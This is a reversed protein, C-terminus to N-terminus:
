LKGMAEKLKKIIELAISVDRTEDIGEVIQNIVALKAALMQQIWEEITGEAIIYYSDAGHMDNLRGYAREEAQAHAAPTWWLDAFIVHGAATLNLGTQGTMLSVVLFHVRDDEQFAKELRSREDMPTDGTWYIAEGGLRAAIDRVTKKYQSFILVKKAGGKADDEGNTETDFLEVALDAVHDVKDYSCVQKLKGIEVLISTINKNIENGYSDIVTYVGELIRQYTAKAKDSLEHIRNIRNIPPLDAVVDKKLRRLMIGKLIERLEDVNRARKGDWTYQSVFRDESPFMGPVIHNLLAWLERPRNLIPTGTLHLVSTANINRIAHSRQSQSNKIYHAEDVIILDPKCTNLLEAWLWRAKPPVVHTVGEEDISKEEETMVKRGIIDYNIITYQPKNILMSTFAEKDPIAGRLVEPQKGTLAFIERAWNRKLHAPCIIVTRLNNRESYGLAQWTKGLGMQDALLVRGNAAEIFEIGIKQFERLKHGNLFPVTLDSTEKTAIADLRTRKLVEERVIQLVEPEWIADESPPIAELLAPGETLPIMWERNRRDYRAGPISRLKDSLAEPRIAVKINRIDPVVHYMPAAILKNLIGALNLPTSVSVNKLVQLRNKLDPWDDIGIINTKNWNDYRRSKTSKLIDLIDDRIDNSKIVVTYYKKDVSVVEIKIPITLREIRVREEEERKHEYKKEAIIRKKEAIENQRKELEILEAELEDLEKSDM